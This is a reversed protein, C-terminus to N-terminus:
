IKERAGRARGSIYIRERAGRAGVLDSNERAREARGSLRFRVTDIKEREARVGSFKLKSKREARVGSFRFKSEREARVGSFRFKSEREPARVGSFRFKVV